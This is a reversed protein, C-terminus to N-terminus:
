EEVTIEANATSNPLHGGSVEFFRINDVFFPDRGITGGLITFDRLADGDEIPQDRRVNPTLDSIKM